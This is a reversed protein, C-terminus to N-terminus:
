LRLLSITHFLCNRKWYDERWDGFVNEEVSREGKKWCDDDIDCNPHVYDVDTLFIARSLLVCCICFLMCM